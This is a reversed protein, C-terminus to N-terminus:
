WTFATAETRATLDRRLDLAADFGLYPVSVGNGAGATDARVRAMGARLDFPNRDVAVVQVRSFRAIRTDHTFAGDRAIFADHTLTWALHRSRLRAHLVAFASWALVLPIAWQDIIFWAPVAALAPLALSGRLMRGFARAHVSQWQLADLSLGPHLEELLAPLEATRLIPAIPERPRADVAAGGATEVLVSCRDLMRHLMGRRVIITQVRRLPITASVRTFMGYETHLDDGARELRFEYLRIVAWLTSLVRIFLLVLLVAVIILLAGRLVPLEAGGLWREAVANFIAEDNTVLREVLRTTLGAQELLAIAGAILVMGRNEIVGALILDRPALALLTHAQGVPAANPETGAAVPATGDADAHPAAEAQPAATGAGGGAAVVRARMEGLASTPIVRMTAEPLLGSGTQVHVVTVGFLRHLPNQAADLNQIRVYPIRRETRTFLGSRVFLEAPDYRYSFRLYRVVAGVAIVLTVGGMMLALFFMNDLNTVFLVVLPLLVQKMARAVDFVISSPHLRRESSTTTM